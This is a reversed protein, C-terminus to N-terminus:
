SLSHTHCELMYSSQRCLTIENSNASCISAIDTDLSASQLQCEPMDNSM